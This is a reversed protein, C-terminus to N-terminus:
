LEILWSRSVSIRSTSSCQWCVCMRVSVKLCSPPSPSCSLPLLASEDESHYSVAFHYKRGFRIKVGVETVGDAASSSPLLFPKFEADVDNAHTSPDICPAMLRATNHRDDSRLEDDDRLRGRDDFTGAAPRDVCVVPAARYRPADEREGDDGDREVADECDLLLRRIHEVGEWNGIDSEDSTYVAAAREGSMLLMNLLFSKGVKTRCECRRGCCGADTVSQCVCM